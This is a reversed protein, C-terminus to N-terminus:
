QTTLQGYYTKSSTSAKEIEIELQISEHLSIVLKDFNYQVTYINKLPVNICKKGLVVNLLYRIKNPETSFGDMLKPIINNLYEVM